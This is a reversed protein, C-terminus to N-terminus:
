ISYIMGESEMIENLDNMRKVAARGESTSFLEAAPLGENIKPLLETFDAVGEFTTEFLVSLKSRFLDLRPYAFFPFVLAGTPQLLLSPWKLMALLQELQRRRHSPVRCITQRGLCVRELGRHLKWVSPKPEPKLGSRAHLRSRREKRRRRKERMARM